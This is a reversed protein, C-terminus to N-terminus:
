HLIVALLHTPHKCCMTGVRWQQKGVRAAQSGAATPTRRQGAGGEEGRAEGGRRSGVGSQTREWREMM